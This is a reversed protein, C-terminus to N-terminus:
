GDRVGYRVRDGPTTPASAEPDALGADGAHQVHAGPYPFVTSDSATITGGCGFAMAAVTLAGLSKTNM